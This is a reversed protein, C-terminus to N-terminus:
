ESFCSKTFSHAAGLYSGLLAWSVGRDKVNLFHIEGGPLSHKSGGLFIFFPHRVVM